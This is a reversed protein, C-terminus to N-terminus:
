AGDGADGPAPTDTAEETEPGLAPPLATGTAAAPLRQRAAEALAIAAAHSLSLSTPEGRSPIRVMRHCRERVAASLGRKEGGIALLVPKALDEGYIPRRAGPICGLLRVGRRRLQELVEGVDDLRVVPLREYAGSSARAVAPGDYDWVHRKVLVAHVGLAEASRLTFGLNQADEVGELLLLFGPEEARDLAHWLAEVPDVPRPMCVAIVGGHTVGQAMADLEDPAVRKVPVGLAAAAALVEAVKEERARASVLIVQFRRRRASLAALVGIRGELHEWAM